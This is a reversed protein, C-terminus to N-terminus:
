NFAINDLPMEVLSIVREVIGQADFGHAALVQDPNGCKPIQKLGYKAFIVSINCDQALRSALQDGLGGTEMHNDFCILYNMDRLTNRLWAEDVHNLWPMHVVQVSLGYQQELIATAQLINDIMTVGYSMLCIEQGEKIIAGKGLKPEYQSLTQKHVVPLSCLRLYISHPLNWLLYPLAKELERTCCPEYVLMDPLNAFASIDRVAQHSHGPGAPLIGALTGVYLIKTKESNANYVQEYARSSLFCAFSHVIPLMGQLALGSAQSVMDQEAIGCEIYRQPYRERYDALGCDKALDADLAVLEEHQRAQEVLIKGYTTVLNEAKIQQRETLDKSQIQLDPLSLSQWQGVIKQMLAEQAREYEEVPLCGSHYPYYLTDVGEGPQMFSVGKAKTTHCILVQPRPDKIRNSDHTDELQIYEQLQAIDHGDCELARWGFAKFKVLLNGLDSTDSVWTDSQLKNHDVLVTLESMNQKVASALSEWIQGEQLEGDGTMVFVRCNKGRLRNATIMGKAKSIGMGLSGTNAHIYPTSVDPHGPLGGLSRLEHIQEFPIKGLATLVAYLGPVDHGKSSFFIHESDKTLAQAQLGSLYLTSVIDMASFSSGIHGSGANQIMYLTNYRCMNAFLAIKTPHGSDKSLLQEFMNRAIYRGAYVRNM